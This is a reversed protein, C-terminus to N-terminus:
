LNVVRLSRCTKFEGWGLTQFGAFPVFNLDELFRHGPELTQDIPLEPKKQQLGPAAWFTAKPYKLKLGSTFQYHYLNPAVIHQLEGIQDLQQLMLDTMQIPSIAVVSGDSLKIVTMRTGVSLGLYTLPQEAVWINHDINRLM